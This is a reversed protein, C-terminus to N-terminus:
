GVLALQDGSGRNNKSLNCKAHALQVNHLAHEGGKSLPIIHDISPRLPGKSGVAGVKRHPFLCNPIRCQGGDREILYGLLVVKNGRGLKAARRAHAEALSRERYEANTAYKNRTWEAVRKRRCERSCANAKANRTCFVKGCSVCDPFRVSSALKSPRGLNREWMTCSKSCFRQKPWTVAFPQACHECKRQQPETRRLAYGCSRSCARREKRGTFATGCAECTKSPM